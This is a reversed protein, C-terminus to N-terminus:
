LLIHLKITYVRRQMIMLQFRYNNAQQESTRVESTIIKQFIKDLVVYSVLVVVSGPSTSKIIGFTYKYSISICLEDIIYISHRVNTLNFSIVRLQRPSYILLYRVSYICKYTSVDRSV